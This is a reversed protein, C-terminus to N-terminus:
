IYGACSDSCSVANEYRTFRIVDGGQILISNTYISISSLIIFQFYKYYQQKLQKLTKKSYLEVTM